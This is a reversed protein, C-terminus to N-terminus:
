GAHGSLRMERPLELGNASLEPPNKSGDPLTSRPRLRRLGLALLVAIRQCRQESTLDDAYEHTPM